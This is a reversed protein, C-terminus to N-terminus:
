AGHGRIAAELVGTVMKVSAVLNSLVAATLGARRGGPVKVQHVATYPAVSSWTLTGSPPPGPPIRSPMRGTLDQQIIGCTIATAPRSEATNMLIMVKPSPPAPTSEPSAHDPHDTGEGARCCRDGGWGRRGRVALSRQGTAPEGGREAESSGRGGSARRGAAQRGRDRECEVGGGAGVVDRGTGASQRM